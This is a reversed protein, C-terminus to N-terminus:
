KLTKSITIYNCIKERGKREGFGGLNDGMSKDKL